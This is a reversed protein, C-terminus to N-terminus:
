KKAEFVIRPDAHNRKYLTLVHGIKQIITANLAEALETMAADRAERDTGAVRVKMLEHHLISNKCESILADTIGKDGVLIVPKLHHALGKLYQRQEKSLKM